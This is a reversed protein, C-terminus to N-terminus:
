TFNSAGGRFQNLLQNIELVSRGDALALALLIASKPPNLFGSALFNPGHLTMTEPQVTVEGVRSSVVIVCGEAAMERAAAALPRPMTGAGFGAIVLGSCRRDRWVRLPADGCGGHLYVVGIEPLDNKGDLLHAFVGSLPESRAGGFLLLREGFIRGTPGGPYSRFADLAVSNIKVAQQGPLLLGNIAVMVGSRRLRDDAAALAANYINAPGDASLATSARMAATMVVPKETRCVLDLFFAGEELTDTGHTVVIGDVDPQDSLEQIRRALQLWQRPGLDESGTSFMTEVEIEAVRGLGDVSAILDKTDVRGPEYSSSTASPGSGAITGGAGIIRIRPKPAM